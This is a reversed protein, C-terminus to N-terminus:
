EDRCNKEYLQFWKLRYSELGLDVTDIYQFGCKKYLQIAPTNKEYVDLRISSMHEAISHRTIFDLMFQGIGDGHSDPHVVFTYIVYVNDYTLDQKWKVTFYAPEPEHRLLFSGVIAYEEIAVYLCHDRIGEVATDRTPYVGKKWGPYNTNSALYDNVNDYLQELEDIDTETGLRIFRCM